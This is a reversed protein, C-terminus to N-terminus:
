KPYRSVDKHQWVLNIIQWKDNLKILHLYEVWNDSVLKVTAIRNYIDLIAINNNPMPPFKNNAKNWSVAFDIMQDRTTRRANEMRIKRDFGITVKNLSDNMVENMLEPDLQQLAQLYGLSIRRIESSDASSPDASLEISSNSYVRRSNVIEGAIDLQELKINNGISDYKKLRTAFGWQNIALDDVANHYSYEIHNGNSDYKDQYSALGAENNVVELDENLNYHAKPAGDENLLIGTIGFDFYPSLNVLENKINFRKEIILQKHKRWEYKAIKWNSEMPQDNLDYFELQHKFGSSDYNYVEKFVGRDNIIRKGNKDYFVRTEKGNKYNISTKYAGISALPHKKETHYHNNLIEVLRKSDDYKFVYHSTQQATAQDIPHIGTIQICPSVHNYRLHRFYETTMENQTFASTCLFLLLLM